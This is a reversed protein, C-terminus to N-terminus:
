LVQNENTGNALWQTIQDETIAAQFKSYRYNNTDNKIWNLADEGSAIYNYVIKDLTAPSPMANDEEDETIVYDFMLTSLNLIKDTAELLLMKNGANRNFWDILDADTIYEVNV